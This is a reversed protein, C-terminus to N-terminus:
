AKDLAAQLSQMFGESDATAGTVVDVTASQAAIAESKLLPKAENSIALSRDRDYPMQVYNVGTLRGSSIVAQVQVIGYGVDVADGTYTGDKYKGATTAVPTMMPTSPTTDSGASATTQPRYSLLGILGGIGLLVGVSVFIRKM